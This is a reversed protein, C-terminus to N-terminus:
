PILDSRTAPAGGTSELDESQKSLWLTATEQAFVIAQAEDREVALTVTVAGSASGDEAFAGGVATVLLQDYRLFTQAPSDQAEPVTVLVGILDGAALRGGLVRQADLSLSIEQLGEPVPISGGGGVFDGPSALRAAIVQEGPVLAASTVQGQLEELQDLSTLAGEALFAEPIRDVSTVLALQAAATGAPVEQQVVLVDVLEADGAARQDASRVYTVLVVGGVIALVAAIVLAIIRTRM